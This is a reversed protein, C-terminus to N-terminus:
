HARIMAVGREALSAALGDSDYAMGGILKERMRGLGATPAIPV